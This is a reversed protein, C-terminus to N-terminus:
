NKATSNRRQLDARMACWTTRNPCGATIWARLEEVSWVKLGGIKRAEPVLGAADHRDWTSTGMGVFKAAQPRRLAAPELPTAALSAMSM